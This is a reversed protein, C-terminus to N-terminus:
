LTYPLDTQEFIYRIKEIIVREVHKYDGDQTPTILPIKKYEINLNQCYVKLQDLIIHNELNIRVKKFRV